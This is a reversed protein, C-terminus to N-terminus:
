GPTWHWSRQGSRKWRTLPSIEMLQRLLEVVTLVLAVLSREASEPDIALNRGLGPLAPAGAAGSPERDTKM